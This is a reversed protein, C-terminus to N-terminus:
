SAVAVSGGRQWWQWWAEAVAATVAAASGSSHQRWRWQWWAAAVAALRGSGSGLQWRWAAVSSGRYRVAPLDQVPHMTVQTQEKASLRKYRDAGRGDLCAFLHSEAIFDSLISGAMICSSLICVVLSTCLM